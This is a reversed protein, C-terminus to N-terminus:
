ILDAYIELARVRDNILIKMM